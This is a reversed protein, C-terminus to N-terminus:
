WRFRLNVAARVRDSPPGSGERGTSASKKPAEYLTTRGPVLADIGTGIAAYVGTSVLFLAARSGPCAGGPNDGPCDSLGASVLGLAVGVIAGIVAGNRLSDGRKQIRTVRAAEFRREAGGVLLVLSDPNLRLLRGSTEVGADDLVYVTSLGSPSLGPWNSTTEQAGVPVPVLAAVLIAICRKMLIRDDSVIMARIDRVRLVEFTNISSSRTEM